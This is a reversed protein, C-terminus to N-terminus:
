YCRLEAFMTSTEDLRLRELIEPELVMFVEIGGDRLRPQVVVGGVWYLFTYRLRVLRGMQNGWDASYWDYDVLTTVFFDPGPSLDLNYRVSGITPLSDFIGYINRVMPEDVRDIAKRIASAVLNLGNPATSCLEQIPYSSHAQVVANGVYDPNIKPSLRERINCPIAFTTIEYVSTELQRARTMHRWLLACLADNTSIRSGATSTTQSAAKLARLREPSFYWFCNVTNSLTTKRTMNKTLDDVKVLKEYHELAIDNNIQFLPSRDLIELSQHPEIKSGTSAAATHKAWSKIFGTWGVADSTSHHPCIALLLGGKIFNAQVLLAPYNSGTSLMQDAPSLSPDLKSPPFHAQELDHFDLFSPINSSTLDNYKFVVGDDFSLNIQIRDRAADHKVIRGALFPFEVLANSLGCRLESYVKQPNAELDLRFCFIFNMYKRLMFQDPVPLSIVESKPKASPKVLTEAM